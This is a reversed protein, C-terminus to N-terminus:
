QSCRTSAALTLLGLVDQCSAALRSRCGCAVTRTYMRQGQWAVSTLQQCVKIRHVPQGVSRLGHSKGVEDTKPSSCHRYKDSRVNFLSLQALGKSTSGAHLFSLYVRLLLM